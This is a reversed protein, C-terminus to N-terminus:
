ASRINKAMFTQSTKRLAARNATTDFAARIPPASLQSARNSERVRGGTAKVAGGQRELKKRFLTRCTRALNRTFSINLTNLNLKRLQQRSTQRSQLLRTRLKIAVPKQTTSLPPSANTGERAPRTHAGCGDVQSRHGGEKQKWSKAPSEGSAGERAFIEDWGRRLRPPTPESAGRSAACFGSLLM